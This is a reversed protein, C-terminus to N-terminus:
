SVKLAGKPCDSIIHTLLDIKVRPNGAHKIVHSCKRCSVVDADTKAAVHLSEDILRIERLLRKAMLQSKSLGLRSQLTLAALLLRKKM